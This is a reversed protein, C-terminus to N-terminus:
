RYGVRSTIDIGARVQDLIAIRSGMQEGRGVGCGLRTTTRTWELRGTLWTNFVYLAKNSDEREDSVEAHKGQEQVLTGKRVGM